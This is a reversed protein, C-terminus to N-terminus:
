RNRQRIKAAIPDVPPAIQAEPTNQAIVENLKASTSENLLNSNM